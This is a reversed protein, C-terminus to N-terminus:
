SGGYLLYLIPVAINNGCTRSTKNFYLTRSFLLRAFKKKEVFYVAQTRVIRLSYMYM